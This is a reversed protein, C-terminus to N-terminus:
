PNCKNETQYLSTSTRLEDMIGIVIGFCDAGKIEALDRENILNTKQDATTRM